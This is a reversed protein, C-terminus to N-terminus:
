RSQLIDNTIAAVATGILSIEIKKLQAGSISLEFHVPRKKRFFMDLIPVAVGLQHFLEPKRLRAYVEQFILPLSRQNLAVSGEFIVHYPSFGERENIKCATALIVNALAGHARHMILSAIIQMESFAGPSLSARIEELKPHNIEPDFISEWIRCVLESDDPSVFYNWAETGKLLSGKEGERIQVARRMVGHLFMGSCRCQYLCWEEQDEPYLERDFNEIPIRSLVRSTNDDAAAMGTGCVLLFTREEPNVEIQSIGGLHAIVPDTQYYFVPMPINRSKFYRAINNDLKMEPIMESENRALMGRIAPIKKPHKPIGDEGIMVPLTISMVTKDTKTLYTKVAEDQLLLEDLYNYFHIEKSPNKVAKIHNVHIFGNKTEAIMLKTNSGGVSFALVPAHDMYRPDKNLVLDFHERIHRDYDENDNRLYERALQLFDASGDYVLREYLSKMPMEKGQDV